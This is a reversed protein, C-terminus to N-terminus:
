LVTISLCLCDCGCDHGGHAVGDLPAVVFFTGLGFIALFEPEEFFVLYNRGRREEM